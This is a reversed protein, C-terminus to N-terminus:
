DLIFKDLIVATQKIQQQNNITAKGDGKQEGYNGFYAHNGGDIIYEIYDLGLNSKNETGDLSILFEDLSKQAAGEGNDRDYLWEEFGNDDKLDIKLVRGFLYDFYTTCKLLHEAEEKTIIKKNKHYFAKSQSIFYRATFFLLVDLYLTMPIAIFAIVNYTSTFDLNFLFAAAVNILILDFVIIASTLINDANVPKKARKTPNKIFLILRLVPFLALAFISILTANLSLNLLTGYVLSVILFEVM